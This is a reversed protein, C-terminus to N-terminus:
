CLLDNLFSVLQTRQTSTNYSEKVLSCGEQGIAAISDPQERIFSACQRFEQQTDALLIHKGPQTLLGANGVTTTIVPIGLAMAELIKVRIGSGSLLPVVLIDQDAMFAQANEVEGYVTVGQQKRTRLNEPMGRGAMHFELQPNEELMKPFVTDLFWTMAQQNPSWDMAGLHFLRVPNAHKQFVKSSRNIDVSIGFPIVSAPTRESISQAFQADQPSIHVLGDVSRFINAEFKELKQNEQSLLWRKLPHKESQILKQWIDFEINHTRLIVKASSHQQLLPLYPAVYISELWICDYQQQSLLQILRQAVQKDYFRSVRYSDNQFLVRFAHHWKINTDITAVHIDLKDLLKKPFQAACFPHKSTSLCFLDTHTFSEKLMELTHAMALTGGDVTPYPPKPAIVLIRTDSPHLSKVLCSM